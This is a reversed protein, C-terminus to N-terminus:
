VPYRDATCGRLDNLACHAFYLSWFVIGFLKFSDEIFISRFHGPLDVDLVASLGLAILSLGLLLWPSELVIARFRITFGAALLAYLGSIIYQPLATFFPWMKEHILFLDDLTLALSLLGFCFYFVAREKRAPVTRLVAAATLCVTAAAMWFLIGLSSVFGIYCLGHMTQLADRTMYAAPINEVESLVLAGSLMLLCFGIAASVAIRVERFQAPLQRLMIPALRRFPVSQKKDTQM